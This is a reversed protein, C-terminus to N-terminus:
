GGVSSGEEAVGHNKGGSNLHIEAPRAVVGAPMLAMLQEGSYVFAAHGPLLPM